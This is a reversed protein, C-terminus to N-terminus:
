CSAPPYLLLGWVRVGASSGLHAQVGQPPKHGQPHPAAFGQQQRFGLQEVPHRKQLLLHRRTPPVEVRQCRPKCRGCGWAPLMALAYLPAHVARAACPKCACVPIQVYLQALAQLTPASLM